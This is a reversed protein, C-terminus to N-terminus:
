ETSCPRDANEEVLFSKNLATVQARRFNKVVQTDPAASDFGHFAGPVVVLECSVSADKLRQAYASDEDYFLDISGVGIWAPPLGSLNVQRSPVSFAPPIAGGPPQNLYSKWGFYNLTNNWAFHGEKDMDNRAATRDDLMPYVLLQFIPRVKGRDYAVQALAAALGAGASEGGIAIRGPDINLSKSQEALWLLATYCDDLPAPFPCGPALRYDVSVVTVGAEQLFPLVYLDDMEPLGIIYGGGHMWLLAPGDATKNQLQYIRLRIQTKGDQGPITLNRVRIGAPMKAGHFFIKTLLRLIWLSKLLYSPIHPMYRAIDQLEPHVKALPLKM